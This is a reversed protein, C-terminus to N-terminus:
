YPRTPESIHILSLPILKFEDQPKFQENKPGKGLTVYSVVILLVYLGIGLFVKGRTSM